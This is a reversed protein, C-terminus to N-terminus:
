QISFTFLTHVFDMGNTFQITSYIPFLIPLNQRGENKAKASLRFLLPNATRVKIPYFLKFSILFFNRGGEWKKPDCCGAM